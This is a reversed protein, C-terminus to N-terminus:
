RQQAEPCTVDLAAAVEPELDRVLGTASIAMGIDVVEFRKLRGQSRECYREVIPALGQLNGAEIKYVVNSRFIWFSMQLEEPDVRLRSGDALVADVDYDELRDGDFHATRYMPYALIPWGWRGTDVFGAVLQTGLIVVILASIATFPTKRTFMREV